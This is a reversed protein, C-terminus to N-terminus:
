PFFPRQPPFDGVNWGPVKWWFAYRMRNELTIAPNERTAQNASMKGDQLSDLAHYLEHTLAVLNPTAVGPLGPVEGQWTSDWNMWVRGGAIRTWNTDGSWKMSSDRFVLEMQGPGGTLAEVSAITSGVDYSLYRMAQLRWFYWDRDHRMARAWLYGTLEWGVQETKEWDEFTNRSPDNLYGPAWKYWADLSGGKWVITVNEPNPFDPNTDSDDVWAFVIRGVYRPFHTKCYGGDIDASDLFTWYLGIPDARCVPNNGCYAYLNMGSGYGITDTQLFRGIYPNYYRARYYYLGTEYDFRRGTFMYPNAIFNPDSAAVQGYASYEYSQCSDGSSDILAVVSGSGDYHYYYVASSDAVDIM